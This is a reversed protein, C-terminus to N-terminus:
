AYQIARKFDAQTSRSWAMSLLCDAEGQKYNINRAALLGENAYLFMTERSDKYLFSLNAMADVGTTERKHCKIIALLSDKESQQADAFAILGLFVILLLKFKIIM